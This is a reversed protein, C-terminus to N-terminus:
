QKKVYIKTTKQSHMDIKTFVKKLLQNESEKIDFVATKPRKVKANEEFSVYNERHSKLTKEM